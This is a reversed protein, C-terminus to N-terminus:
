PRGLRACRFGRNNEWGDPLWNSRNAGRLRDTNVDTYAGGRFV